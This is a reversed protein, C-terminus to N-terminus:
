RISTTGLHCKIRLAYCVRDLMGGQWQRFIQARIRADYVVILIAISLHKARASIRDLTLHFIFLCTERSAIVARLARYRVHLRLQKRFALRHLLHACCNGFRTLSTLNWFGM